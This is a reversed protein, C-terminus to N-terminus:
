EGKELDSVLMKTKIVADPNLSISDIGANVLLRVFDPKDSPVQGCLGIYKGKSKTTKIVSEVLRVVAPNEEDYLSSLYGSDRDLGLVLQTLDNTGISFGDFVELFEDALVVNSPVECMAYIELGNEGQRLGNNALIEIVKKGEDVTRCFPVMIQVNNLGIEDRVRKLSACELEFAAKYEESYYRSAGRWGLMPNEENPEFFRGGILGAYENSKFDSLRVIVKKPYFAAAITAIGQALMDKFFEPKSEYNRTIEEIEKKVNEDQIDEFNLLALPHVKIYSNVIFEERVLGVGDVPLSAYSFAVDPNGLNIMIKTNTQPLKDLEHKEIHFDLKGEYVYGKEGSSCDVTVEQGNKLVETANVTGVVCPIGLERSVIAAHCTRGGKNTIISSAKKMIPNWDPDTMETVLVSGPVFSDIESPDKIISVIGTGIKSGVSMGECLVKSKEKLIYKELVNKNKISHVTEPRAQVIFLENTIGDKAWEMDMFTKKGRKESYHDEIIMAWNALKLIEDDSLVFRKQDEESVPINKTRKNGDVTYVLMESKSGLKKSLISRYGQKFTPKFVYYEDPNVRGQVINEGLGYIATIFIVDEFGSETDLTFMVGSAGKDARVMKQVGVSLAISSSNFGKNARYVIARNTFLSAFCNKISNLLMDDGRINLYTEQQGAFSADALDEATASSRVAVDADKGYQICLHKYAEVIAERLHEPFSANRIMERIKHGKEALDNLNDLDISNVLQDIQQALRNSNIFDWYGKSTIAFGNPVSIGKQTLQSYMEGLSANKGGVLDVDDVSIQDFWLILQEEKQKRDM